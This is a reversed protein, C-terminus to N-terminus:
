AKKIIKELRSLKNYQITKEYACNFAEHQSEFILWDYPEYAKMEKRGEKKFHRQSLYGMQQVRNFIFDMDEALSYLERIGKSRRLKKKYQESLSTM